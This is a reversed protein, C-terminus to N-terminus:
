SSSTVPLISRSLLQMCVPVQSGSKMQASMQKPYRGLHICSEDSMQLSYANARKLLTAHLICLLSNDWTLIHYSIFLQKENKFLFYSRQPKNWHLVQDVASNYEADLCPESNNDDSTSQIVLIDWQSCSCYILCHWPVLLNYNM